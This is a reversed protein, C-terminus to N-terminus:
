TEDSNNLASKQHITVRAPLLFKLCAERMPRPLWLKDTAWKTVEVQKALSAPGKSSAQTGCGQPFSHDLVNQTSCLEETAGRGVEEGYCYSQWQTDKGTFCSSQPNTPKTKQRKMKTERDKMWCRSCFIRQYTTPLHILSSYKIIWLETSFETPSGLHQWVGRWCLWLRTPSSPGACVFHWIVEEVCREESEERRGWM